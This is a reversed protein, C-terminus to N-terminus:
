SHLLNQKSLTPVPQIKQQSQWWFIHFFGSACQEPNSSRYYIKRHLVGWSLEDESPGLAVICTKHNVYNGNWVAWNSTLRLAGFYLSENGASERRFWSKLVSFYPLPLLDMFLKGIVCRGWVTSLRDYLMNLNFSGLHFCITSQWM